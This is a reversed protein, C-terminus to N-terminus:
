KLREKIVRYTVKLIEQDKFEDWAGYEYETTMLQREILNLIDGGVGAM